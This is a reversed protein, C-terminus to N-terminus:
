RVLLLVLAVTGAATRVHNWGTWRALFGAWDVGGVALAENLPVNVVATVGIVGVLLVVAAVAVHVPGGTVLVTVVLAACAVGTGVFVGLFVPNLVASNIARMAAAGDDGPLRGLGTMVGASFALLLGTVIGCGATAVIRLVTM